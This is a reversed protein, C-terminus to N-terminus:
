KYEQVNTLGQIAQTIYIGTCKPCGPAPPIIGIEAVMIGIIDAAERDAEPRRRVVAPERAVLETSRTDL